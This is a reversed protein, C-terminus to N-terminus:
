EGGKGVPMVYFLSKKARSTAVYLVNVEEQEKERVEKARAEAWEKANKRKAYRMWYSANVPFTDHLLFVRDWELGKSRHVTSLLVKDGEPARLLRESTRGFRTSLSVGKM